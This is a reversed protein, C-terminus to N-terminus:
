HRKGFQEPCKVPCSKPNNCPLEAVNGNDGKLGTVRCTSNNIEATFSLGNNYTCTLSYGGIDSKRGYVSTLQTALITPKNWVHFELNNTAISYQGECWHEKQSGAITAPDPCRYNYEPIYCFSGPMSCDALVPASMLTSIGFLFPIILWTNRFKNKNM